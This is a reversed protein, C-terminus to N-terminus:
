KNDIYRIVRAPNGVAVANAPIDKTVVSGAGIIANDGITVGMCISSNGGIWVCDGIKIPLAIGLGDYRGSAEMPHAVAFIGTGPGIWVNNGIRVEAMDLITVNYNTLFNDGVHINVGMDCYFGPKLSVNKGCSGFLRHVLEERKGSDRFPIKELQQCLDIARGQIAGIEDDFMKYPLGSSLKDIEKM